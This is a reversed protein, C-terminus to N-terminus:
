GFEEEVLRRLVKEQAATLTGQENKAYLLLLYVVDEAPAWYYIIRVGGSKGRGAPAWRMKRIGGMGRIVQGVDPRAVLEIQLDRFENSTLAHDVQKRFVSTEIFEM